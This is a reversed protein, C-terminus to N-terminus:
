LCFNDVEKKDLNDALLKWHVDNAIWEVINESKKKFHKITKQTKTNAM